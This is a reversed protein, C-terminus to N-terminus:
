CSKAKYFTSGAEVGMAEGPELTGPSAEGPRIGSVPIGSAGTGSTASVEAQSLAAHYATERSISTDESEGAVAGRRKRAMPDM